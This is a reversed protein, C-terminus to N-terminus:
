AGPPFLELQRDDRAAVVLDSLGLGVLRVPRSGAQTKRLLVLAARHLEAAEAVPSALSTRRTMTRGDDAFRVKVSVRRAVLGELALRAELAEALEQLRESLFGLDVEGTALTTEQSLTKAHRTARVASPDRGQSLALLELGRNGLIEELRGRDLAALEGVSHVDV